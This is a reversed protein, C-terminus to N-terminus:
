LGQVQGFICYKKSDVVDLLYLRDIFNNWILETNEINRANSGSHCVNYKM